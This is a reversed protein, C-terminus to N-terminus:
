RKAIRSAPWRFTQAAAGILVQRLNKNVVIQICDRAFEAGARFYVPPEM